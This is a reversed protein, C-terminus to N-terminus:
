QSDGRMTGTSSLMMIHMYHHMIQHARSSVRIRVVNFISSKSYSCATSNVPIDSFVAKNRSPSFANISRSLARLNARRPPESGASSDIGRRRDFGALQNGHYQNIGRDPNIMQARCVCTQNFQEIRAPYQHVRHHHTLQGATIQLITM